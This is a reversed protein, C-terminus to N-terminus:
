IVDFSETQFVEISLFEVLILSLSDTDAEQSIDKKALSRKSKQRICKALFTGISPPTQLAQLRSSSLDAIFVM